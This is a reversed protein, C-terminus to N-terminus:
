IRERKLIVANGGDEYYNEVFEVQCFGLMRAWRLGNIFGERVDMYIVDYGCNKLYTDACAHIQVFRTGIDKAIVTWAHAERGNLDVVGMCAM